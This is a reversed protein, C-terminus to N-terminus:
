DKAVAVLGIVGGICCVIGPSLYLLNKFNTFLLIIYVVGFLLVLTFWLLSLKRNTKIILIVILFISFIIVFIDEALSWRKSHDNILTVIASIFFIISGIISILRASNKM